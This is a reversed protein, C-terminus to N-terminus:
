RNCLQDRGRGLLLAALSGMGYALRRGSYLVWAWGVIDWWATCFVYVDFSSLLFLTVDGGVGCGMM